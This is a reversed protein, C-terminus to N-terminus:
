VGLEKLIEDVICKIKTEVENKNIINDDDGKFYSNVNLRLLKYGKSNASEDNKRNIKIENDNSNRVGM